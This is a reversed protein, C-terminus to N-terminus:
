SDTSFTSIILNTEYSVNFSLELIVLRLIEKARTEKRRKGPKWTEAEDPCHIGSNYRLRWPMLRTKLSHCQARAPGPVSTAAIIRGHSEGHRTTPKSRREPLLRRSITKVPM